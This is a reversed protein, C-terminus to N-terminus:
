DENPKDLIRYKSVVFQETVLRVSEQDEFDLSYDRFTVGRYHRLKKMLKKKNALIKKM